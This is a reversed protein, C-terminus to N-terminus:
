WYPSFDDRRSHWNAILYIVFYIPFSYIHEWNLMEYFRFFEFLPGGGFSAVTSFIIGKLLPSVEPKYEIIGLIIVPILTCDWPIYAPLWPMVEYYYIWLGYQAGLFDLFSSIILILFGTYLLRHRSDKKSLFAWLVWPIIALSLGLWWHPTFLVNELWISTKIDQSKTISESIAKVKETYVSQLM